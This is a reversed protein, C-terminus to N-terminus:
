SGSRRPQAVRRGRCVAPRPEARCPAAAQALEDVLRHAGSPTVVLEGAPLLGAVTEAWRQPVILDRAGRLVLAPVVIRPLKDEIRDRLALRYTAWVRRPGADRYDALLPV